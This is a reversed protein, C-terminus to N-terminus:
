STFFKLLKLLFNCTGDKKNTETLNEKLLRLADFVITNNNLQVTNTQNTDVIRIKLSLLKAKDM